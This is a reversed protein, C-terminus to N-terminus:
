AARAEEYVIAATIEQESVGYDAAISAITEAANYRMTIVSTSIGKSALIPAGFSRRPNLVIIRDQPSGPQPLPFLKTPFEPTEWEFRDLVAELMQKMALQGSAGLSLYEGFKEILLTGAFTKLDNRRLLHTIRLEREAECIAKRITSLHVAHETRLSHLVYAEALNNFSLRLPSSVAPSLVPQFQGKNTGAFWSRL